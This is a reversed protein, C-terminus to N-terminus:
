NSSRGKLRASVGLLGLLLLGSVLSSEPTEVPDVPPPDVIVPPNVPPLNVPPPNVPPPNVPPPTVPPPTVPTPDVVPPDAVPPNVPPPEVMVPPEVPPPEVVPPEPLPTIGLTGAQIFVASDLIADSVDSIQIRLTNRGTLVDGEFRLPQTYGDLRTVTGPGEANNVYQSSFPGDQSRALNNVRVFNDEGVSNDLLALNNGNLELTFFDNFVSGAFELFEESGFVYQFFLRDVTADADFSIELTATDFLEGADGLVGEFNTSLDNPGIQGLGDETNEGPIDEVDGTSLVVGSGLGFPDNAFTGFADDFGNTSGTFNSLGTTNGLLNGLLESFNDNQSVTFAAAPEPISSLSTGIALGVAVAFQTKFRM